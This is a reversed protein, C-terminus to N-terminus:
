KIPPNYSFGPQELQKTPNPSFIEKPIRPTIHLYDSISGRVPEVKLESDAQKQNGRIKIKQLM